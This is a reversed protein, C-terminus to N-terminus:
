GHVLVGDGGETTLEFKRVALSRMIVEICHDSVASLDAIVQALVKNSGSGMVVQRALYELAELTSFHLKEAQCNSDKPM